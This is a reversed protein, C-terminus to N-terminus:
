NPSPEEIHDIVLCEVPLKRDELKLGLQEQVATFLTPGTARASGQLDEPTWTLKFNYKGTLHTDDVVLRGGIEPTGSLTSVLAAVPVDRGETEGQGSNHLGSWNDEGTMVVTSGGPILKSGGKAVVLALVPIERSELHTKLQFRDALLKQVMKRTAEMHEDPTMKALRAGEDDGAKARIDFPLSLVWKPAGIVQNDSGENLNFAFKLLFMVPLNSSRISDVEMNLDSGQQDPASPRVSSVEFAPDKSPMQAQAMCQVLTLGLFLLQGFANKRLVM